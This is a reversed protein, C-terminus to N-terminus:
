LFHYLDLSFSNGFVSLDGAEWALMQRPRDAETNRM